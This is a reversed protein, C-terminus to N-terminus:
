SSPSWVVTSPRFAAWAFWFHEGSTIRELKRGALPGEVAEGLINWLSGTQEDEFGGDVARFSLVQDDLQRSFVGTSGTERGSNGFTSKTGEKWWVVLSQGSIEDNVVLVESLTSFPYAMDIEDFQIAVVREMPPLRENDGTVPFYPSSNISDYGAYPNQGYPRVHGTERSLVKGDPHNVKFDSWAIIQSPLFELQTGTLEGVIAEGTFQQWWSRTQRDYMVLDSNRLNGTTGFDLVTGDAIVRNFAITANCLPCFTLSVQAGGVEDNVIEHYILITLPYARADGQWEFFMVPWEDQLWADADAVSEFVPNDIAPIGDPPPGGSFIESYDVSHKSFDTDPWYRPNFRINVNAFPDDSDAGGLSDPDSDSAVEGESVQSGSEGTDPLSATVSPDLDPTSGDSVASACASLILSLAGVLILPRVRIRKLM